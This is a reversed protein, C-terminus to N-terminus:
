LSSEGNFVESPISDAARQVEVAPVSITMAGTDLVFGLVSDEAGRAGDALSKEAEIFSEDSVRRAISGRLYACDNGM